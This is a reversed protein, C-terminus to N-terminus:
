AATPPERPLRVFFTTGEAATSHVDVTGGHARVVHDVIYLGLGVGAIGGVGGTRKAQRLPEFIHPMLAPDIPPGANHVELRVWREGGLTRITVPQAPSGYKFANSLLNDIVQALRARDWLGEGDGGQEFRLERGPYSARTTEGVERALVHLDLLAVSIPIGGAARARTFDLLDRILAEARDTAAKIRTVTKLTASDLTEARGGLLTNASLSITHLPSRLDHSVIGILQQELFSRDKDSTVDRGVAYLVDAGPLASANVSVWLVRGSARLVRFEFRYSPHGQLVRAAEEMVKARDDPHIFERYPRSLVEQESRGLVTLFAPNIRKLYGDAGVVALIDPAISFFQSLEAGIKAQTQQAQREKALIQHQVIIATARQAMARVLQRDDDSFDCATVSGICAVGVVNSDQILPVGYLAHVRTNKFGQPIVAPDNAADHTLRPASDAAIGGAFGEGIRLMFGRIDDAGVGAASHVRLTDDGEKLYIFTCDVAETTELLVNQLRNLFSDLEAAGLGAASVRDLSSLTRQKAAAYGDVSLALVDDMADNFRQVEALVTGSDRGETHIRWLELTTRRLLALEAAAARLDFGRDLRDLAHLEPTHALSARGGEHVTRVVDGIRELLDPIHDRLAPGALGQAVPWERVTREWATIIEDAHQQLFDCLRLQEIAGETRVQFHYSDNRLAARNRAHVSPARM